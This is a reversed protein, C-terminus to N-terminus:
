ANSGVAYARGNMISIQAVRCSQTSKVKRFEVMGPTWYAIGGSQLAVYVNKTLDTVARDVGRLREGELKSPPRKAQASTDVLDFKPVLDDSEWRQSVVLYGNFWPSVDIITADIDDFDAYVKGIRKWSGHSYRNLIGDHMESDFAYRNETDRGFAYFCFGGSLNMTPDPVFANGSLKVWAPYLWVEQAIFVPRLRAPYEPTANAGEAIVFFESSPAAITPISNSSSTNPLPSVATSPASNPV